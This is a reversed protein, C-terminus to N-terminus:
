CHRVQLDKNAQYIPDKKQVSANTLHMMTDELISDDSTATVSYPKLALRVYGPHYFAITHPFNRAVLLYCRIDFKFGEPGILLPAELYKQVIGKLPQISTDPDNTIKGHCILKLSEVGSIVKIGRGRNNCSPKYIWIPERNEGKNAAAEEAEKLLFNIDAPSDLDFTKPLWPPQIFQTSGPAKKCFKDRLTTLLGIKTTIVDNNPIHCVLQGPQHARYDIQSRREVWKMGFRSSFQYEFPLQQWGRKDMSAKVLKWGNSKGVYYSKSMDKEKEKSDRVGKSSRVSESLKGSTSSSAVAAAGNNAYPSIRKPKKAVETPNSASLKPLGVEKEAVAQPPHTNDAVPEDSNAAAEDVVAEPLPALSKAADFTEDDENHEDEQEEAEDGGGNNNEEEDDEEGGASVDEQLSPDSFISRKGAAEVYSLSDSQWAHEPCCSKCAGELWTDLSRFHYQVLDWTTSKFKYSPFISVKGRHYRSGITAEGTEGGLFIEVHVNNHKQPKSRKSNYLGEYFILDGPKLQEETLVVPLTDMQYAQNWRGIIFGFEERLDQVAQRVLGCCDLYLPAIPDNPEKFRLAYPVGLYKKATDVFKARLADKFDQTRGNALSVQQCMKMIQREKIKQDRFKMFSSQLDTKGANPDDGIYLVEKKKKSTTVLCDEDENSLKNAQNEVNEEATSMEVSKTLNEEEM